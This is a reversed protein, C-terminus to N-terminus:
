APTMEGDETDDAENYERRAHHEDGFVNSQPQQERARRRRCRGQEVGGAPPQLSHEGRYRQQRISTQLRDERDLAANKSSRGEAGQYNGGHM